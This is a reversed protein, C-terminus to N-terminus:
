AFAFPNCRPCSFGPGHGCEDPKRHEVLVFQMARLERCRERFGDWAAAESPFYHGHDWHPGTSPSWTAVVWPQTGHHEVLVVWGGNATSRAYARVPSGNLASPPANVGASDLADSRDVPDAYRAPPTRSSTVAHVARGATALLENVEAIAAETLPAAHRDRGLQKAEQLADMSALLARYAAASPHLRFLEAATAFLSDATARALTVGRALTAPDTIEHRAARYHAAATHEGVEDILDVLGRDGAESAARYWRRITDLADGTRAYSDDVNGAQDQRALSRLARIQSDTATM